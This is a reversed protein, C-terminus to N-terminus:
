QNAQTYPTDPTADADLAQTDVAEPDQIDVTEDVQPPAGGDQTDQTMDDDQHDQPVPDSAGGDEQDLRLREELALQYSRLHELALQYTGLIRELLFLRDAESPVGPVSDESITIIETDESSELFLHSDMSSDSDEQESIRRSEQWLDDIYAEPM